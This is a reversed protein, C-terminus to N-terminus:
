YCVHREEPLSADAPFSHSLFGNTAIDCFHKCFICIKNIKSHASGCCFPVFARTQQRPLANQLQPPRMRVQVSKAFYIEIENVNRNVHMKIDFTCLRCSSTDVGLRKFVSCKYERRNVKGNALWIEKLLDDLSWFYHGCVVVKCPFRTVVWYWNGILVVQLDMIVAARM